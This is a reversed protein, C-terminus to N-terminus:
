NKKKKIYCSVIVVNLIVSLALFIALIAVMSKSGCFHDKKIQDKSAIHHQFKNYNIKTKHMVSIKKPCFTSVWSNGGTPSPNCTVTMDNALVGDIIKDMYNLTCNCTEEMMTNGDQDRSQCNEAGNAAVYCFARNGQENEVNNEFMLWWSNSSFYEMEDKQAVGFSFLLVGILLPVMQLM